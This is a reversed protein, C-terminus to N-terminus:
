AAQAPTVPFRHEVNPEKLPAAYQTDVEITAVDLEIPPLDAFSFPPYAPAAPGRACAAVLVALILSLCIPIARVSVM